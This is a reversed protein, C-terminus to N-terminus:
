KADSRGTAIQLIKNLKKQCAAEKSTPLLLADMSTGIHACVEALVLANPAAEGRLWKQMIQTSVGVQMCVDKQSTGSSEIAIRLKRGFSKLTAVKRKM